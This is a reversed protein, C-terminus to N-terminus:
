KVNTTWLVSILVGVGVGVSDYDPIPTRRLDRTGLCDTETTTESIDSDNM